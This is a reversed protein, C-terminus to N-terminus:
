SYLHNCGQPQYKSSLIYPEQFPLMLVEKPDIRPPIFDSERQSNGVKGRTLLSTINRGKTWSKSWNMYKKLMIEFKLYKKTLELECSVCAIWKTQRLPIKSMQKINSYKLDRKQGYNAVIKMKIGWIIGIQMKIM